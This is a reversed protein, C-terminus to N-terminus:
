ILMINLYPTLIYLWCCIFVDFATWHVIESYQLTKVAPDYVTMTKVTCGKSLNCDCQYYICPNM